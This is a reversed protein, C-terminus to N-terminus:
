HQRGTKMPQELHSNVEIYMTSGAGSGLVTYEYSVNFNQLLCLWPIIVGLIKAKKM